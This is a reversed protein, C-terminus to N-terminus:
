FILAFDDGGLYTIVLKPDNSIGTADAYNINFSTVADSAWTGTFSTNIDWSTQTGFKSIGTLSINSDGSANMDVDNYATTSWSANAISGFSTIQLQGYDSAVLDNTNAPTAGSVHFDPSGLGTNKATGFFSIIGTVGTALDPISSTDFCFIGRTLVGYQDTTTTANLGCAQESSNTVNVNTGAGTRITSFVEGAGGPQRWVQGDVPSNAGAVPYVTLEDFGLNWKPNFTNAFLIDWTHILYWFPKFAYYLRKAFKDHTRFEATVKRGKRWWIANSEIHIIKRNSVSSKNGDICLIKRGIWSNAFWLLLKQHKLFWNKDFM